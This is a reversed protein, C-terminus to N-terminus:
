VCDHLWCHGYVYFHRLFFVDFLIFSILKCPLPPPSKVQHPNWDSDFLIVTDAAQLNIGLGGARTSLMFVFIDKDTNFADMQSQREALKVSGDIRCYRWERYRLYDEMINLTETMQSFILVQHGGQKRLHTLMKDLVQLSFDDFWVGFLASHLFIYSGQVKRIGHYAFWTKRWL